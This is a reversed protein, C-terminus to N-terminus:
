KTTSEYSEHVVRQCERMLSRAPELSITNGLLRFQHTRCVPMKYTEPIGMLRKCDKVSLQYWGNKSRPVVDWAHRDKSGRGGCRAERFPTTLLGIPHYSSYAFM